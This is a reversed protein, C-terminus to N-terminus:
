QGGYIVYYLIIYSYLYTTYRRLGSAYSYMKIYCSRRVRKGQVINEDNNYINHNNNNIYLITYIGTAVNIHLEQTYM